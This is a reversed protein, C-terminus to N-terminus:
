RLRRDDDRRRAGATMTESADVGPVQAGSPMRRAMAALDPGTGCGVDLAARAQGLALQEPLRGKAEGLGTVPTAADLFGILAGPDSSADIAGSEAPGSRSQARVM